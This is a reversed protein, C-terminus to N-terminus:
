AIIADPDGGELVRLRVPKLTQWVCYSATKWRKEAPLQTFDILDEDPFLGQCDIPPIGQPVVGIKETGMLRKKLQEAHCMCVPLGARHLVLYFKIAERCRTYSSGSVTMYYGNEDEHVFLSIHEHRWGKCVEWPHGHPEHNHFWEAFAQPSDPDIKTLGDDQGNAYFGYQERPPLYTAMYGNEKYGLACFSFFDNATMEKIRHTVQSPNEVANALFEAIDRESLNKFFNKRLWPTANWFAERTMTGIRHQPPLEKSVRENYSGNRVASIVANVSVLIWGVLESADKQDGRIRSRQEIICHHNLFVARYGDKKDERATFHFWSEAETFEEQWWTEISESDLEEGEDELGAYYGVYHEKFDRFTGRPATLWFEWDGTRGDPEIKQLFAFLQDLLRNTKRDYSVENNLRAKSLEGIQIMIQPATM